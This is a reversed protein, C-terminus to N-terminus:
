VSLVWPGDQSAHTTGGIPLAVKASAGGLAGGTTGPSAYPRDFPGHDV